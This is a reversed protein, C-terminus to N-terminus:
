FRKNVFADVDHGRDKLLVLAQSRLLIYRDILDLIQDVESQEQVTLKGQKTKANLEELRKSQTEPIKRYVVAWLLADTYTSMQKMLTDMDASSVDGFFVDIGERLVEEISRHSIEAAEQVASYVDEPLQLTISKLGM